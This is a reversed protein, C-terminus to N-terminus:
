EKVATASKGCDNVSEMPKYVSEFGGGTLAIAQDIPDAIEQGAKPHTMPYKLM